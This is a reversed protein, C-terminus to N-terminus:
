YTQVKNAYTKIADNAENGDVRLIIVIKGQRRADSARFVKEAAGAYYLHRLINQKEYYNFGNNKM